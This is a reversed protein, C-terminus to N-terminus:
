NSTLVKDMAIASSAVDCGVYPDWVNRIVRSRVTEGFSGHFAPFALDVSIPKNLLGKRKFGNQWPNRLTLTINLFIRYEEPKTDPDSFLKLFRAGHRADM